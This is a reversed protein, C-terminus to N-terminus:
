SLKYGLRFGGWHEGLITIPASVDFMLEGTDRRYTQLKFPESHSGCTIGVRDEYIRKTRNGALDQQYDGTLPQCFQNNHTPVYGCNDTTIAYVSLSSSKLIAEQISPLIADALRDYLTTYKPPETGNIEQYNRDFLAEKKIQNSLIAQEFAQQVKQAALQATQRMETHLPHTEKEPPALKFVTVADGLFRSLQDLNRTSGALEEVLTHNEHTISDLLNISDNALRIGENQQNSAITITDILNSTESAGKAITEMQKEAQNALIRGENVILSSAKILLKIEKAAGASRKALDRVESVVVAFGQGEEGARAAEVAANLSLINTQFAIENIISIIGEIKKSSTEIHEMSDSVRLIAQRGDQAQKNLRLALKQADNASETNNAVTTSLEEMSASSTQLSSAQERTRAALEENRGAIDAATTEIVKAFEVTQRIAETLNSVTTILKSDLERFAGHFKQESEVSLDCEAVVGLKESFDNLPSSINNLCQNLGSALKDFYPNGTETKLLQSFKGQELSLCLKNLENKFNLQGGLPKFTAVFANTEDDQLLPSIVIGLQEGNWETQTKTDGDINISDLNFISELSCGELSSESALLSKLKNNIHTIKLEKDLVMINAACSNLASFYTQDSM